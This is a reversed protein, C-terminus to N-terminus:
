DLKIVYKESKFERYGRYFYNKWTLGVWALIAEYRITFWCATWPTDNKHILVTIERKRTSVLITEKKSTIRVFTTIRNCYIDVTGTCTTQTSVNYQPNIVSEV